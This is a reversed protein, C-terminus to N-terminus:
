LTERAYHCAGIAVAEEPLDLSVAKRGVLESVLDRVFPLRAGGGTVLVGELEEGKLNSRSLVGTVPAKVHALVPDVISNYQARSLALNLHKPGRHDATIFPLSISSSVSVSLEVQPLLTPKEHGGGLASEEDKVVVVVGSRRPTMKMNLVVVVVMMMMMMTVRMMMMM